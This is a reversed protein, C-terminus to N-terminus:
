KEESTNKLDHAKGELHVFGESKNIFTTNLEEYNIEYQQPKLFCRYNTKRKFIIVFKEVLVM